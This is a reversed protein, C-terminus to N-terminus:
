NNIIGILISLLEELDDPVQYLTLDQVIQRAPTDLKGFRWIEGITVAGYLCDKEEAQSLAMLEVALQTFGRTLDDRKAEIVTLSNKARLLYDLEGKLWNNVNLPYEIRLQCQCLRVVETIVPAVLLERRATESSLSVLPLIEEIQQKLALLRPLSSASKPLTMRKAILAYGFEALIEDPEYPMEFYSRFTYACDDQLIKHRSM